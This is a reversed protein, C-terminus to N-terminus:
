EDHTRMDNASEVLELFQASRNGQWVRVKVSGVILFFVSEGAFDGHGITRSWDGWDVTSPSPVPEPHTHWLGILTQTKDSAKWAKYLIKNHSSSRYFFTRFRKDWWSPETIQDVVLHENELLHRGILLGGAEKQGKKTQRYRNFKEVVNKFIILKRGNDIEYSLRKVRTWWM